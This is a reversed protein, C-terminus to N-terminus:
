LNYSPPAVVRFTDLSIVGGIRGLTKSAVVQRHNAEARKAMANL